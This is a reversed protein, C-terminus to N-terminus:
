KIKKGSMINLYWLDREENENQKYERSIKIVYLVICYNKWIKRFFRIAVGKKNECLM